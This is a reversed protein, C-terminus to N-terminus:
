WLPTGNSTSGSNACERSRTHVVATNLDLNTGPRGAAALKPIAGPANKSGGSSRTSSKLDLFMKRTGSPTEAGSSLDVFMKEALRLQSGLGIAGPVKRLNASLSTVLVIVQSLALFM